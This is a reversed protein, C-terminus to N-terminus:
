GLGSAVDFEQRFLTEQQAIGGGSCSCTANFATWNSKLFFHGQSAYTGWRDWMEGGHKNFIPM